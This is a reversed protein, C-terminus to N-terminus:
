GGRIREIWDRLRAACSRDWEDQKVFDCMGTKEALNKVEGEYFGYRRLDKTERQYSFVRPIGGERSRGIRRRGDKGRGAFLQQVMGRQSKPGDTAVRCEDSETRSAGAFRKNQCEKCFCEPTPCRVGGLFSFAGNGKPFSAIWKHLPRGEPRNRL